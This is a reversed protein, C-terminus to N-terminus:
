NESNNYHCVNLIILWKCYSFHSLPGSNNSHGYELISKTEREQGFGQPVLLLLLSGWASPEAWCAERGRLQQPWASCVMDRSTGSLNHWLFSCTSVPLPSSSQPTQKRDGSKGLCCFTKRVGSCSVQPTGFHIPPLNPNPNGSPILTTLLQLNTNPCFNPNSNPCVVKWAM